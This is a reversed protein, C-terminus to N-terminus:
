DALLAHAWSPVLRGLASSLGLLRLPEAPAETQAEPQVEPQAEPQAEPQPPQVLDNEMLEAMTWAGLEHALLGVNAPEGRLGMDAGTAVITYTHSRRPKFAMQLTQVGDTLSLTIEEERALRYTRNLDLEKELAGRKALLKLHKAGAYASVAHLYYSGGDGLYVNNEHVAARLSRFLM